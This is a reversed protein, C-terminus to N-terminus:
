ANNGKEFIKGEKTLEYVIEIYFPNEKDTMVGKLNLFVVNLMLAINLIILMTIISIIYSGIRQKQSYTREYKGTIIKGHESLNKELILKITHKMM